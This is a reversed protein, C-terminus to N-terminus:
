RPRAVALLLVLGDTWRVNRQHQHHPVEQRLHDAQRRVEAPGQVRCGTGGQEPRNRDSSEERPVPRRQLRLSPDPRALQRRLHRMWGRVRELVVCRRHPPRVVRDSPTSLGHVTYAVSHRSLRPAGLLVVAREARQSQRGQRARPVLRNGDRRLPVQGRRPLAGAREVARHGQRDCQATAPQRGALLSRPAPVAIFSCSSLASKKSCLSAPRV